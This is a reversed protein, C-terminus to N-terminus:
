PIRRELETDSDLPVLLMKDNAEGKVCLTVGTRYCESPEIGPDIGPSVEEIHIFLTQKEENWKWRGSWYHRGTGCPASVSDYFEGSENFVLIRGWGHKNGSDRELFWSSMKTESYNM